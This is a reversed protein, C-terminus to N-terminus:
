RIVINLRRMNISIGYERSVDKIVRQVTAAIDQKIKEDSVGSFSGFLGGVNERLFSAEIDVYVTSGKIEHNLKLWKFTVRPVLKLEAHVRNKLTEVAPEIRSKLMTEESEKKKEETLASLEDIGAQKLLQEVEKELLEKKAIIEAAKGSTEVAVPAAASGSVAAKSVTEIEINHVTIYRKLSRGLERAHRGLIDKVVRYVSDRAMSTEVVLSLNIEFEKRGRIDFHAKDIKIGASEIETVVTRAYASFYPWVDELVSLSIRGDKTVNGTKKKDRDVIEQPKLEQGDIIIGVDRIIPKIEAERLLVPAYKSVAHLMRKEAVEIDRSDGTSNGYIHVNLYVVGEGVNADFEIRNITLGKIRKAEKLLDEAYVQFAKEPISGGTLNVVVEPKGAPTSAPKPKEAEVALPQPEPTTQQTAAQSTVAAGATAAMAAGREAPEERKAPASPPGESPVKFLEDLPVKPTQTYADINDAVSLKLELEDLTYVDVVMPKGISSKLVRIAEEGSLNQKTDVVLCEAALVKSRDLLVTIYYKGEASRAFIKLFAGNGQSLAKQILAGLEGASTAVVNEMFPGKDPLQM